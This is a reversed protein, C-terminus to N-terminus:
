TSCGRTALLVGPGANTVWVPSQCRLYGLGYLARRNDRSSGDHVPGAKVSARQEGDWEEGRGAHRAGGHREVRAHAFAGLRRRPITRAEAIIYERGTHTIAREDNRVQAADHHTTVDIALELDVVVRQAVAAAGRLALMSPM